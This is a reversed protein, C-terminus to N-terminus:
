RELSREQSWRSLRAAQLRNLPPLVVRNPSNMMRPENPPNNPPINIRPENPPNNPPINIRPENPPNNPPINIRPENPPNNPPINIRPENPTRPTRDIRNLPIPDNPPPNHPVNPDPINPNAEMHIQRARRRNIFFANMKEYLDFKPIRRFDFQTYTPDEVLLQRHKYWFHFFISIIMALSLSISILTLIPWTRADNGLIVSTNVLQISIQPVCESIVELLVLANYVATSDDATAQPHTELYSPNWVTWFWNGIAPISMLKTVYFVVGVMLLFPQSLTASVVIVLIFFIRIVIWLIDIPIFILSFPFFEGYHWDHIANFIWGGYQPQEDGNYHGHAIDYADYMDSLKGLWRVVLLHSLKTHWLIYMMPAVLNAVCFFSSLYLLPPFAFVSYWAYLIDSVQDATILAITIITALSAGLGISLIYCVLSLLVYLLCVAVPYERSIVNRTTADPCDVSGIKHNYTWPQCAQCSDQNPQNTYWGRECKVCDGDVLHSGVSCSATPRFSVTPGLTPSASPLSTPFSSITPIISPTTTPLLTPSPSTPVLSPAIVPALTVGATPALSPISPVHSYLNVHDPDDPLGEIALLLVFIFGLFMFLGIYRKTSTADDFSSASGIILLASAIWSWGLIVFVTNGNLHYHMGTLILTIPFCFVLFGCGLGVIVDKSTEEILNYILLCLFVAWLSFFVWGAV